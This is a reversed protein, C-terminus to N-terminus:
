QPRRMFRSVISWMRGSDLPPSCVKVFMTGAHLAQLLFFYVPGGNIGTCGNNSSACLLVLPRYDHSLIAPGKRVNPALLPRCGDGAPALLLRRHVLLIKLRPLM